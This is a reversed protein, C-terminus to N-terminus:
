PPYHLLSLRPNLPSLSFFLFFLFLFDLPSSWAVVNFQFFLTLIRYPQCWMQTEEEKTTSTQNTSIFNILSLHLSPCDSPPFNLFQNTSITSPKKTFVLLLHNISGFHLKPNPILLFYLNSLTCISM